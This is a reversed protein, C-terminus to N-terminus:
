PTEQLSLNDILRTNGARVALFLRPQRIESFPLERPAPILTKESAVAVYDIQLPVSTIEKEAAAVIEGVTVATRRSAEAARRAAIPLHAAWAREDTSLYRNRSSLALGDAERVIPEPVIALPLNLDEVMQQIVRLQQFDKEGFVAFDPQAVQFLKLCVTAVGEFHGPRSAGCLHDTLKNVRVLTAFDDAYFDKKTPAMLLDVGAAELKASDEEFTRPYKDFDENPGFQLPNVFISVIVKEGLKKATEVLRLHGEHLCGMTPVFAIKAERRWRLAMEQIVQPSQLVLM